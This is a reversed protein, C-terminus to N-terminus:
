ALPSTRGIRWVFHHGQGTILHLPRMGWELLPGEIVKVVPEQLEFCRVPDLYAVAPSLFNLYELDLHLLDSKSDALSRSVDLDRELFWHFEAPPRLERRDYLFGDPHTLCVATAHAQSEGGLFETLRQRVASGTFFTNM